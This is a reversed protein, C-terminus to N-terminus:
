TSNNQSNLPVKQRLNNVYTLLQRIQGYTLFQLNNQKLFHNLNQYKLTITLNKREDEALEIEFYNQQLFEFFELFFTSDEQLYDPSVQNFPIKMILTIQHEGSVITIGEIDMEACYTHFVIDIIRLNVIIDDK